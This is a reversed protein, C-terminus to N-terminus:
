QAAARPLRVRSARHFDPVVVLHATRRAGLDHERVQQEAELQLAAVGTVDAHVEDLGLVIGDRQAVVRQLHLHDLVQARDVRTGMHRKM